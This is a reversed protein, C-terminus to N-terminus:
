VKRAVMLSFVPGAAMVMLLGVALGPAFLLFVVLAGILRYRREFPRWRAPRGQQRRRKLLWAKFRRETRDALGGLWRGLFFAVVPLVVGLAVLVWRDVLGTSTPLLEIEGLRGPAGMGYGIFLAAWGYCLSIVTCVGLAQGSSAEGFHRDLWDLGAKLWDQYAAWGPLLAFTTNIDWGASM